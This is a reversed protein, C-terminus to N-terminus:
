QKRSNGNEETQLSAVDKADVTKAAAPVRAGIAQEASAGFLEPHLYRGQEQPPKEVETQIRHANAYADHRIGTVQWSVKGGPKGGAVKFRNGSIEIAVYLSPQPRGISTLQYRFDQNLAEFYEPLTIWVTGHADLAAVGNYINMMDPSEVFSHYLYKNAPDLPHDIQFSGGGKSITGDVHLNSHIYVTSNSNFNTFALNGAGESNGSAASLINWTAGGTSTNGLTMWTGFTNNSQIAVPIYTSNGVVTLPSTPTTTGIGVNTSACPSNCSNVGSISGLVLSNSATVLANAGIATANNLNSPSSVALSGLATNFSGTTNYELADVGIGTNNNGTTNYQLAAVGIGTNSYGTTNKPLASLGTATNSNGTTNSALALEGMATNYVGTTNFELAADGIATNAVGTTTMNGAFGLFANGNAYSGYAFLNSGIQFGSGTVLGTATLNGNVTQNGTFTNAAALQPVKTTDLSLTQVGGTGGGNLDTGAVVGTMVKTTDVNLTVNGNGGGGTLDTGATVGTITGTGPFTQGTAFTILGTFNGTGHVDLTVAPTTTGIGVNTSATAGNVGNISGLVMSNSADVEANAGIATANNLTGTGMASDSGVFSNSSGTVFSLDHTRGAFQGSGTNANGTTNIQLAAVGTATNGSGLTNQVLALYGSATNYSGDNQNDGANSALAEVGTATNYEGTTTTNGAFGLFANQYLYSGFAFLNSGIQFGAGTVMGTASLNGNVTQNGTFTNAAALQAYLANTAGTNLSLTVNGSTGGGTLDTGATVGTITGTGVAACIWSSGNWQLVQNAACANTISLNLNGSTGGGTLGSGSATTVGTITGGGSFVIDLEAAHSTTTNEKSDFSANLPSNAVLAIGDNPQSGSLWAQLAPTIDILIYQNKDTTTLSVSAAITSGLAPATSATITSESWAGNVFDVNFSGAKTVASVYLKLSAKTIDASTYGAPIASLDFQIYSTQSASEVDLLTKAGYNTTPDATNTYADGSPTLQGYASTLLCLASLVLGALQKAFNRM